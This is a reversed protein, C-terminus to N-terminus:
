YNSNFIVVGCLPSPTTFRPIGLLKEIAEVGLYNRSDSKIYDKM